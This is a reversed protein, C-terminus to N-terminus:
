KLHDNISGCKEDDVRFEGKTVHGLLTLEVGSNFMQNVFDDEQDENVAVVAKYKTIDYLFDEEDMESDTTIDFGLKNKKCADVLSNFLGEEGILHFSKIFGTEVSENLFDLCSEDSLIYLTNGKELFNPNVEKM